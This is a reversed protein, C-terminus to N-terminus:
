LEVLGGGGRPDSAGCAIRTKSDVAVLCVRGGYPDERVRYGLGELERRTELPFFPDV